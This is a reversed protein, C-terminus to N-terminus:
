YAPVHTYMRHKLVLSSQEKQRKFSHCGVGLKSPTSYYYAGAGGRKTIGWGDFQTTIVM